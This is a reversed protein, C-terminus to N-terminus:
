SFSAPWLTSNLCSQMGLPNIRLGWSPGSLKWWWGAWETGMSVFLSLRWGCTMIRGDQSASGWVSFAALFASDENMWNQGGTILLRWERKMRSFVPESCPQGKSCGMCSELLEAVTWGCADTSIAMETPFGPPVEVSSSWKQRSTPTWSRVISTHGASM